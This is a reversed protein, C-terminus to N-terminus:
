SRTQQHQHPSGARALRGDQQYGQQWGHCGNLQDIGLFQLYFASQDAAVLAEVKAEKKRKQEVKVRQLLEEIQSSMKNFGHVLMDSEDSQSRGAPIRTFVGQEVRRMGNVTSSISRILRSVFFRDFIWASLLSFAALILATNRIPASEAQLVKTPTIAILYWNPNYSPLYTILSEEGLYHDIYSNREQSRSRLFPFRVEEGMHEGSKDYVIAGRHNVLM